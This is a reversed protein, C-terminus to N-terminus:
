INSFFLGIKLYTDPIRFIFGFDALFSYANYDNALKSQFVKLTTGFTLNKFADTEGFRSSFSIGGLITQEAKVNTSNGFDDIIEMTGGDYLLFNSSISFPHNFLRLPFAFAVWGLYTDSLGKLYSTSIHFGTIYSLGAPNGNVSNVDEGLCAQTEGIAFIRANPILNLFKAGTTIKSFSFVPILLFILILMKLIKCFFDQYFLLLTM